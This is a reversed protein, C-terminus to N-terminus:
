IHKRDIKRAVELLANAQQFICENYSLFIASTSSIIKVRMSHQLHLFPHFFNIFICHCIQLESISATNFDMFFSKFLIQFWFFPLSKYKKAYKENM